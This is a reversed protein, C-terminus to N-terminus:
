LWPFLHLHDMVIPLVYESLLNHIILYLHHDYPVRFWPIHLEEVIVYKRLWPPDVEDEVILCDSHYICNDVLLIIYRGIVSIVWTHYILRMEVVAKMSGYNAAVPWRGVDGKTNATPMGAPSKTKPTSNCGWWTLILKTGASPGGSQQSDDIKPTFRVPLHGCATYM